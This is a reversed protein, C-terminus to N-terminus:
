TVSDLGLRVAKGKNKSFKKLYEPIDKDKVPIISIVKRLIPPRSLYDEPNNTIRPPRLVILMIIGIKIDDAIGDLKYWCKESIARDYGQVSTTYFLQAKM